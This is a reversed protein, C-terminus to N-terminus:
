CYILETEKKGGLCFIYDQLEPIACAKFLKSTLMVTAASQCKSSFTNPQSARDTEEPPAM